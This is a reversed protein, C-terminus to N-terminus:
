SSTRTSGLRRISRLKRKGIRPIKRKLRLRRIRNRRNTKRRHRRGHRLKTKRVALSSYSRKESQQNSGSTNSASTASGSAPKLDHISGSNSGKQDTKQDKQDTEQKVDASKIKATLEKVKDSKLLAKKADEPILDFYVLKALTDLTNNDNTHNIMLYQPIKITGKGLYPALKSVQELDAKTILDIHDGDLKEKTISGKDLVRKEALKVFDGIKDPTVAGDAIKEKTISGKDLVKADALEAFCEISLHTVAKEQIKDKTIAKKALKRTNDGDFIIDAFDEVNLDTVADNAIKKETISNEVMVTNNAFRAFDKINHQTVAEDQINDETVDGAFMLGGDAFIFFYWLSDPTVANMGFKEKEIGSGLVRMIEKALITAFFEEFESSCDSLTYQIRKSQVQFDELIGREEQLHKISNELVGLELELISKRNELKQKDRQPIRAGNPLNEDLAEKVSTLDENKSAQQAEQEKIEADIKIIKSRANFKEIAANLVSGMGSINEKMGKYLEIMSGPLNNNEDCQVMLNGNDDYRLDGDEDIQCIKKILIAMNSHYTGSIEKVLKEIDKNNRQHGGDDYNDNAEGSRNLNALTDMLANYKAVVHTCFTGNVHGHEGLSALLNETTIASLAGNKLADSKIEQSELIPDLTLLDKLDLEKLSVLSTIGGPGCAEKFKKAAKPNKALDSLMETTIDEPKGNAKAFIGNDQGVYFSVVKDWGKIEKAIKENLASVIELNELDGQMNDM